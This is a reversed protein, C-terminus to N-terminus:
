KNNFVAVSTNKQKTLIKQFFNFQSNNKSKFNFYETIKMKM